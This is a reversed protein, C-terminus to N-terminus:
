HTRLTFTRRMTRASARFRWGRAWPRTSSHARRLDGMAATDAIYLNGVIDVTVGLPNSLKAATAPGNDGGYGVAGSGAVTVLNQASSIAFCAAFLLIQKM